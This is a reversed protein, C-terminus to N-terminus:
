RTELSRSADGLSGQKLGPAKPIDVNSKPSQKTKNERKGMIPNSNPDKFVDVLM